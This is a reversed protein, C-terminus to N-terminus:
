EQLEAGCGTCFRPNMVKGLYKNCAPCRWNFISFVLACLVLIFFFLGFGEHQPGLHIIRAKALLAVGIMPMLLIAVVWQRRQRRKFNELTNQRNLDRM